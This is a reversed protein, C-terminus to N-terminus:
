DLYPNHNQSIKYEYKTAKHQNGTATILIGIGELILGGPILVVAFFGGAVAGGVIFTSGIYVFTTSLITSLISHSKIKVIDEIMIKQNDISISFDDLIVIRGFHKKHDKTVIKVRKNEPYFEVDGDSKSTLIIGREQSFATNTIFVFM